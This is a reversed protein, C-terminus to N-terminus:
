ELASALEKMKTITTEIKTLIRSREEKRARVLRPLTERIDKDLKYFQNIMEIVDDRTEQEKIKTIKRRIERQKSKALEVRHKYIRRSITRKTFDLRANREEELSRIYDHMLEALEPRHVKKVKPGKLVKTKILIGSFLVIIMAIVAVLYPKIKEWTLKITSIEINAIIDETISLNEEPKISFIGIYYGGEEITKIPKPEKFKAKGPVRVEISGNVVLYGPNMLLSMLYGTQNKTIPAKYSIKLVFKEKPGPPAVLYITISTCTTEHSLFYKGSGVGRVYKYISGEISLVTINAPLKLTIVDAKRLGVNEFEYYDYVKVESYSEVEAIRTMRKIVIWDSGTSYLTLKVKTTTGPEVYTLNLYASMERIDMPYECEILFNSTTLYIGVTTKSPVENFSLLIPLTLNIVKGTNIMSNYVVMTFSANRSKAVLTLTNDSLKVQCGKDPAVSIICSSYPFSCTYTGTEPLKLDYMCLIYGHRTYIKVDILSLQNQASVISGMPIMSAVFILTMLVLYKTM